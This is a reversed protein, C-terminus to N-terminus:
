VTLQKKREIIDAVLADPLRKAAQFGRMHLIPECGAAAISRGDRLKEAYPRPAYGALLAEGPTGIKACVGLLADLSNMKMYPCSACGGEASCGEGGAPGPVVPLGGPLVPSAGASAVNAPGPSLLPAHLVVIFKQVSEFTQRVLLESHGHDEFHM